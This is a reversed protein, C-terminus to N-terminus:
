DLDSNPVTRRGSEFEKLHAQFSIASGAFLFSGDQGVLLARGGRIPKGEENSTEAFYLAGVKELLVCSKEIKEAPLKLLKAALAIQESISLM